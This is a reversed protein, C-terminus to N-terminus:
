KEEVQWWTEWLSGYLTPTNPRAIRKWNALWLGPSHFLPLIYQGSTLRRDLARTAEVLQKRSDAAVIKAILEDVLPDSVGMYNRSGADNAAAVGWYRYQEVGPSLSNYWINEIMDFDFTRRMEELQSSDARRVRLEIGAKSLLEAYTLGLQEQDSTAATFTFSFPQRTKTNVLTGKQLEFGAQAFLELATKLGARNRGRGDSVPLLSQGQAVADPLDNAADGLLGREANSLPIGIYSLESKPFYSQVREFQGAYLTKNIWEFDFLATLAKRVRIDDFPAKRTNFVYARLPKPLSFSVDSLIVKGSKVANFNYGKAWQAPDEEYRFDYDGVKFAEFLSNSDNYYDFIIEDFNFFGRRQPLDKGWYDARKKFVVRKGADIQSIEYPGSGLLPTMSVSQFVEETVSKAPFVTMM